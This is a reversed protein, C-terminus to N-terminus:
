STADKFLRCYAADAETKLNLGIDRKNHNMILFAASEGAIAPPIM